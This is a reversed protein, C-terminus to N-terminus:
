LLVALLLGVAPLGGARVAVGDVGALLLRDARIDNEVQAVVAVLRIFVALVEALPRQRAKHLFVGVIDAEGDAHLHRVRAALLAAGIVLGLKLVHALPLRDVAHHRQPLALLAVDLALLVVLEILLAEAVHSRRLRDHGDRGLARHRILRQQEDRRLRRPQVVGLVILRTQLEVGGAHHNHVLAGIQQRVIQAKHAAHNIRGVQAQIDRALQQLM